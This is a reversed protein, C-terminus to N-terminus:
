RAGIVLIRHRGNVQGSALSAGDSPGCPQFRV